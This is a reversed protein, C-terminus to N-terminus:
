AAEYNLTIQFVDNTAWTFPVTSTMNGLSAYNLNAIIPNLSYATSSDQKVTAIYDATGSDLLYANGVGGSSVGSTIPLSFQVFAGTVASTSGFVFRIMLSVLKGVQCYRAVLTGNGVTVGTLTPTYTTWAGAYKLGTAEGSAASLVLDNAGAALRAFTGSGTGPVLDGKTTITTAM